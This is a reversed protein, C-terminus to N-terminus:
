TIDDSREAELCGQWHNAISQASQPTYTSSAERCICRGIHKGACPWKGAQGVKLFGAAVFASAARCMVGENGSYVPLKLKICTNLLSVLKVDNIVVALRLQSACVLHWARLCPLSVGQKTSTSRQVAIRQLATSPKATRGAAVESLHNCGPPDCTLRPM